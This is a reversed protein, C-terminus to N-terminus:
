LAPTGGRGMGFLSTLGRWASPVPLGPSYTAAGKRLAGQLLGLPAKKTVMRSCREVVARRRYNRTGSTDRPLRALGTSVYLVASRRNGEACCREVVARRRYNRTGSTDRPLRVLGTSVYLVARRRNKRHVAGNACASPHHNKAIYRVTPAYWLPITKDLAIAFRLHLCGGFSPHIIM